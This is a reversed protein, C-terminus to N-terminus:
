GLQALHGLYEGFVCVFRDGRTRTRRQNLGKRRRIAIARNHRSLM